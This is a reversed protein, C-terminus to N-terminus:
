WARWSSTTSAASCWCAPDRWAPRATRASFIGTIVGNAAKEQDADDFIINPSKGGLELSVRKLHAAATTYVRRGAEDGGTFAIRAVQPHSVIHDGIDKGYGSIVNIVGPPSGAEEALKALEYMPVSTFESPKCVM